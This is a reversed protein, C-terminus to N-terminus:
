HIIFAKRECPPKEGRRLLRVKSSWGLLLLCLLPGFLLVPLPKLRPIRGCSAVMKAQGTDDSWLLWVALVPSSLNRLNRHQKKKKKKKRPTIGDM